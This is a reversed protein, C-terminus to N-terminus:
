AGAPVSRMRQAYEAGGAATFRMSRESPIIPSPNGVHAAHEKSGALREIPEIHECDSTKTVRLNNPVADGMVRCFRTMLELTADIRQIAFRGIARQRTPETGTLEQGLLGRHLQEARQANIRSVLV